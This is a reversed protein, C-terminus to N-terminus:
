ICSNLISNVILKFPIWSTLVGQLHETEINTCIPINWELTVVVSLETSVVHYLSLLM